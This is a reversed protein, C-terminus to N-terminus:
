SKSVRIDDIYFDIDSQDDISCYQLLLRGDESEQDVMAGNLELLNDATEDDVEVENSYTIKRTYEIKIKKM